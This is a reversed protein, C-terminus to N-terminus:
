LRLNKEAIFHKICYIHSFLGQMIVSCHLPYKLVVLPRVAAHPLHDIDAVGRHLAGFPQRHRHVFRLRAVFAVRFDLAARHQWRVVRDRLAFHGTGIAMVWMAFRLPIELTLRDVHDAVFAVGFLLPGKDVLVRRNFLIAVNAVLRM